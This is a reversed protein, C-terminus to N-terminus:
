KSVEISYYVRDDLEIKSAKFLIDGGHMVTLPTMTMSRPDYEGTIYYTGDKEGIEHVGLIEIIKASPKHIATIRM